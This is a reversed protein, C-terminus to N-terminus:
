APEEEGTWEGAMAMAEGITEPVKAGTVVYVHAPDAALQITAAQLDPHALYRDAPRSEWGPIIEETPHRTIM